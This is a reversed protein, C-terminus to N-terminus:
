PLRWKQPSFLQQSLFDKGISHFVGDKEAYLCRTKLVKAVAILYAPQRPVARETCTDNKKNRECMSIIRHCSLWALILVARFFDAWYGKVSRVKKNIVLSFSFSSKSGEGEQSVILRPIWYGRYFLMGDVIIHQFSLPDRFTLGDRVSCLYDYYRFQGLFILFLM